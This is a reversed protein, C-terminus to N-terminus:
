RARRSQKWAAYIPTETKELEKEKEAFEEVSVFLREVMKIKPKLTAILETPREKYITYQTLGLKSNSAGIYITNM